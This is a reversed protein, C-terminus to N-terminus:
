LLRNGLEDFVRLVAFELFVDISLAVFLLFLDFVFVHILQVSLGVVRGKLVVFVDKNLIVGGVTSM